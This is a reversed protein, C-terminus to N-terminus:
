AADLARRKSNSFQPILCFVFCPFLLSPAPPDMRLLLQPPTLSGWGSPSHPGQHCTVPEPVHQSDGVPLTHRGRQQQEPQCM